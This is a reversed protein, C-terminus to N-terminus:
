ATEKARYNVISEILLIILCLILFLHYQERYRFYQKTSYKSKENDSIEKLISFIESYNPTVQSFKGGTKDAISYLGQVDLKTLIPNGKNDKAYEIYGPRNNLLLHEGEPNGIGITYITVAQAALAEAQEIGQEELDEGDSLLILTKASAEKDFVEAAKALGAGIDTGYNTITESSLGSILLKLASYDTTLPCIVQANGAFAVLAVRDGKLEDLFLNIHMKAKELRSPTIDQADMSKSVDILFVIDQGQTDVIRIEKDWQPRAIAIITFLLAMILLFNKLNFYFTSFNLNHFNLLNEDTFRLLQQRRKKKNNFLFIIFVPVLLLLYLAKPNGWNM